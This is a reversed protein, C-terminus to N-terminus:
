RERRRKALRPAEILIIVAAILLLIGLPTRLFSLAGGVGPIIYLLRGEIDAEALPQSDAANNADGQTIFGAEDEGVIRHTVFSGGHRFIVVEGVSYGAQERFILMDGASFAPEMSGSIVIAQSFGGLKPLDQHLLLRAAIFWLNVALLAALVLFALWRLIKLLKKM